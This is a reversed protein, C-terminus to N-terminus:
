NGSRRKSQMEATVRATVPGGPLPLSSQGFVYRWGNSTRVYTDSFWLRHQFPKGDATGKAWLKATVIATDGWARVTQQSDSQREYTIRGSRAEALLDAKTYKKGSGTVLVFDDALMHDMADADNRQVASQYQADLAAIIKTEDTISANVANVPTAAPHFMLDFWPKWTKGGDSSTAGTERVGGNAPKWTGRVRASEGAAHDVGTLVM